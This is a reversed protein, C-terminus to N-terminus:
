VHARGIEILWRAAVLGSNIESLNFLTALIALLTVTVQYLAYKQVLVATGTGMSYGRRSMEYLQLPQGGSSGPTILNYYQGIITVIMAFSMKEEPYDRQMLKLLMYGELLWYIFVCVIGLLLFGINARRLTDAFEKLDVQTLIVIVTAGILFVFFIYNSYKKWFESFRSKAKGSNSDNM